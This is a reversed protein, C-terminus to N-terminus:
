IDLDKVWDGDPLPDNQGAKYGLAFMVKAIATYDPSGSSKLLDYVYALSKIKGTHPLCIAEINEDGINDRISQATDIAEKPTM